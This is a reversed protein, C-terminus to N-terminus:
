IDEGYLAEWKIQCIPKVKKNLINHISKLELQNPLIIKEKKEYLYLDNNLKLLHGRNPNHYAAIEGHLSQVFEKPVAKKKIRDYESICNRKDYM